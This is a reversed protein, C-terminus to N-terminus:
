RKMENQDSRGNPDTHRRYKSHKYVYSVFQLVSGMEKGTKCSKPGTSDEPGEDM